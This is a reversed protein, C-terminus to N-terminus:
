RPACRPHAPPGTHRHLAHRNARARQSTDRVARRHWLVAHLVPWTCNRDITKPWVLKGPPPSSIPREAGRPM